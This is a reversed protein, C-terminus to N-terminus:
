PIKCFILVRRLKEWDGLDSKSVRKTLFSVTTECDPRARKIIFLLKATVSHFTNSKREDLQEATPDVVMLKRTAPSSVIGSVDEGFMKFAEEPQKKM